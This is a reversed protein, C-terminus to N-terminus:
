LLQYTISLNDPRQQSPYISSLQIQNEIIFYWQPDLYFENILQNATEDIYEKYEINFLEPITKTIINNLNNLIL